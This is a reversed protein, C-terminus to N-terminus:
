GNIPTDAVVPIVPNSEVVPDCHCASNITQRQKPYEHGIASTSKFCFGTIQFDVWGGPREDGKGEFLPTALSASNSSSSLKSKWLKLHLAPHVSLTKVIEVDKRGWEMMKLDAGFVAREFHTTQSSVIVLPM